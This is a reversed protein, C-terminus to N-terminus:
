ILSTLFMIIKAEEQVLSRKLSVGIITTDTTKNKSSKKKDIGSLECFDFFLFDIIKPNKNVIGRKANTSLFIITEPNTTGSKGTFLEAIKLEM